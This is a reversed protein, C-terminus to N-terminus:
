GLPLTKTDSYPVQKAQPNGRWKPARFLKREMKPSFVQM